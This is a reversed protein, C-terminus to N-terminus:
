LLKPSEALFYRKVEEWSCPQLMEPMPDAEADTFYDISKLLHVGNYKVRAFKKHFLDVLYALGFKRAAFYLDVFDRKTGRSAIASLKMCAIDRPDSVKTGSFDLLPFLVPYDYALLSVKTGGIVVHLTNPQASTLSFGPLRSLQQVITDVDFSNTNFFDFDHSRRHGFHLALGTGGALFFGNLLNEGALEGLALRMQETITETHWM